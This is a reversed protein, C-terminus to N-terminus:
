SGRHMDYAAWMVFPRRSKSFKWRVVPKPTLGSRAILKKARAKALVLTDAEIVLVNGPEGGYAYWNSVRYINV